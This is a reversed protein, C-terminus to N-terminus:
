WRVGLMACNLGSGIGMMMALQGERVVGREIATALTFPVGAAGVNGHDTYLRLVREEPLQLHAILADHNAKGVQHLLFASVDAPAVGLEAQAAAWTRGALAVGERLLKTADTKMETSTGLCLRSHRTASLSAGGLLRHDVTAHKEHVLLAAVAMSGLTLTALNEGYTRFDVGPQLLRRVTAETVARSGEGAVVLGAEIQGAEIMTAVTVMGTMFGLCAHGVDFDQCTEPLDLDGAVLSAIPPEIFDKCVSTSVVAGLGCSPLGHRDILRRAVQTAADAHSMGEPWFRRARVGTLTELVKDPIGIRKYLPSLARELDATTVEVPPVLTELAQVVVRQFRM